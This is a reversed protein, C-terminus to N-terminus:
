NLDLPNYENESEEDDSSNMFQSMIALEGKDYDYNHQKTISIPKVKKNTNTVSQKGKKNPNSNVTYQSMKQQIEAPTLEDMDVIDEQDENTIDAITKKAENELMNTFSDNKIKKIIPKATCITSLHILIDNVGYVKDDKHTILAPLSKIGKKAYDDRNIDNIIVPNIIFNKKVILNIKELLFNILQKNYIEHTHDDYFILVINNKIDTM